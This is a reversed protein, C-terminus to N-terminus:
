RERILMSILNPLVIVPRRRKEPMVASAGKSKLITIIYKEM